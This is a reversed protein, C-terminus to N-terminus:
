KSAFLVTRASGREYPHPFELLIMNGPAIESSFGLAELLFSYLFPQHHVLVVSKAKHTKITNFFVDYDYGDGRTGSLEGDIQEVKEIPFYKLFIQATQWTRITPSHILLDFSHEQLNPLKEEFQEVGEKSLPEWSFFNREEAIKEAEKIDISSKKKSASIPAHRILLIKLTDGNTSDLDGEQAVTGPSVVTQVTGLFFRKCVDWIAPAAFVVPPKLLLLVFILFSKKLFFGM